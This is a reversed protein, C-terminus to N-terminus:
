FEAAFRQVVQACAQPAAQLLFHPGPLESLTARPAWRLVDAGARRGVVRDSSARLYLLPVRVDGLPRSADVCLAAMVRSRLVSPAVVRVAAQLMALLAPTSWRGLLLRSLLWSPAARVPALRSLPAFPRMWAVPYRAFSTSLVLGVLGAPQSAAISIALPGGFSEGLLVYPESTPLLPRIVRELESYGLSQQTPYSLVVVDTNPGLAEIFPRLM